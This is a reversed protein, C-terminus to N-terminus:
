GEINTAIPSTSAQPFEDSTRNVVMPQVSSEGQKETPLPMIAERLEKENFDHSLTAHVGSPLEDDALEAGLKGVGVIRVGDLPNSPDEILKKWDTADGDLEILLVEPLSRRLLLRLALFDRVVKGSLEQKNTQFFGEVKRGLQGNAIVGLVKITMSTESQEVLEALEFGNVVRRAEEVPWGLRHALEPVTVPESM